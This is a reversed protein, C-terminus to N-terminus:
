IAASWRRETVTTPSGDPLTGTALDRSAGDPGLGAGDLFRARAEDGDLVWTHVQDAGDQRLLDVVAALLRSGHGSQQADPAVELALIAGGPADFPRSEPAPVPAVSAFGVVEAGRCAVLVRYGTAPPAVIARAWQETMAADDVLDLVDPGLVGVHRWAALQIRVVAEEDGPVAPRVSVDASERFLTM